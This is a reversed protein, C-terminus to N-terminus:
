DVVVVFFVFGASVAGINSAMNRYSKGGFTCKVTM